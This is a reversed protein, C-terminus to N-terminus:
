NTSLTHQTYKGEKQGETKRVWLCTDRMINSHMKSFFGPVNTNNFGQYYHDQSLLLHNYLGSIGVFELGEFLNSAIATEAYYSWNSQLAM